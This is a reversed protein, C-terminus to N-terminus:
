KGMERRRTIRRKDTVTISVGYLSHTELQPSGATALEALKAGLNALKKELRDDQANLKEYNKNIWDGGWIPHGSQFWEHLRTYTTTHRCILSVTELVDSNKEAEWDLGAIWLSMTKETGIKTIM